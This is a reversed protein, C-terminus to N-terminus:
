CMSQQPSTDHELNPSNTVGLEFAILRFVLFKKETKQEM